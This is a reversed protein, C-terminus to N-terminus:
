GLTEVGVAALPGARSKLLSLREPELRFTISTGSDDFVLVPESDGQVYVEAYISFPGFVKLLKVNEEQDLSLNLATLSPEEETRRHTRRGASKNMEYDRERAMSILKELALQVEDPLTKDDSIADISAHSLNPGLLEILAESVRQVGEMGISPDIFYTKKTM